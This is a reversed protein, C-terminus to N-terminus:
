GAEGTTAYRLMESQLKHLFRTGLQSLPREQSHIIALDLHVAPKFPLCVYGTGDDHALTFPDVLAAGMGHKVFDLATRFLHVHCRINLRSEAAIFAERARHFTMHDNGMAIFPINDFDSPSLSQQGALPSDIPVACKCEFRMLVQHLGDQEIPLESVGVEYLGSMIWEQIKRSYRADFSVLLDPQEGVFESILKPLFGHSLAHTSVMQLHGGRQNQLDVVTQEVQELCRTMTDIENFLVLAEPTPLLRGRSRKFLVLNTDAELQALLNSIGPQSIGLATAAGTATGSSIVAHM